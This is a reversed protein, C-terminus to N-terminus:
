VGSAGLTVNSPVGQQCRRQTQHVRVEGVAAVDSGAPVGYRQATQWGPRGGAGGVRLYVSLWGVPKPLIAALAGAGFGSHRLYLFYIKSEQSMDNITYTSKFSLTDNFILIRSLAQTPAVVYLLQNLM